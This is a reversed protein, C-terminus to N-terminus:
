DLHGRDSDGMEVNGDPFYENWRRTVLAATDDDCFLEDPYPPKMRADIVIPPKYSLHNRVVEKGAAHIDAAPEFRTFTTWLFNITSAGARKLDDTLIVLPWDAFVVEGALRTAAGPEDTWSPGEVVLCGGCFPAVGSVGRPVGAARFERPLERM